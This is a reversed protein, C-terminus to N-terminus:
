SEGDVPYGIEDMAAKLAAVTAPPGFHVAVQHKEPSGSVQKVGEIGELEARISNVCGNCSIETSHLTVATSSAM